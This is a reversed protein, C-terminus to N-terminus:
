YFLWFNLIYNQNYGHHDIFYIENSSQKANGWYSFSNNHKMEINSMEIGESSAIKLDKGM